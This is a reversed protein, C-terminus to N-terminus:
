AFTACTAFRACRACSKTTTLAGFFTSTATPTLHKRVFCSSVADSCCAMPSPFSVTRLAESSLGRFVTVNRLVVMKNSPSRAYARQRNLLGDSQASAHPGIHHDYHAKSYLSHHYDFLHM